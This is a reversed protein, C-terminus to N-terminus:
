QPPTFRVTIQKGTPGTFRVPRVRVGFDDSLLYPHKDGDFLARAEEPGEFDFKWGRPASGKIPVPDSLIDKGKSDMGKLIVIREITKNKEKKTSAVIKEESPPKKAELVLHILGGMLFIIVALFVATKKLFGFVRQSEAVIKSDKARSM